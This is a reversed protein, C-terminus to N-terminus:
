QPIPSTCLHSGGPAQIMGVAINMSCLPIVQQRRSLSVWLCCTSYPVSTKLWCVFSGPLTQAELLLVLCTCCDSPPSMSYPAQGMSLVNAKDCLVLGPSPDSRSLPTSGELLRSDMCTPTAGAPTPPSLAGPVHSCEMPLM